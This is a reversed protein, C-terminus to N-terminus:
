RRAVGISYGSLLIGLGFLIILIGISVNFDSIKFWLVLFSLLALFVGVYVLFNNDIEVAM